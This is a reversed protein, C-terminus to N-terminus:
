AATKSEIERDLTSRRATKGLFSDIIYRFRNFIGFHALMLAAIAMMLTFFYLDGPWQDYSRGEFVYHSVMLALHGLGAVLFPISFPRLDHDEIILHLGVLVAFGAALALSYRFYHGKNFAELFLKFFVVRGYLVLIGAVTAVLYAKIVLPLVLNGLVRMSVLSVVWGLLFALGLSIVKAWLGDMTFGEALVDWMLKAWGLMAITLAAWGVLMTVHSLLSRPNNKPPLTPKPKTSGEIFPPVIQNGAMKGEKRLAIAIITGNLSETLIVFLEKFNKM